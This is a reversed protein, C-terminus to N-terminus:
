PRSDQSPVLFSPFLSPVLSLSPVYAPKLLQGEPDNDLFDYLVTAPASVPCIQSIADKYVELPVDRMGLRRSKFYAKVNLGREVFEAAVLVTSTIHDDAQEQAYRHRDHDFLAALFHNTWTLDVSPYARAIQYLM